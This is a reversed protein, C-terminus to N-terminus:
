SSGPTVQCSAGTIVVKVPDTIKLRFQRNRFAGLRTWRARNAYAGVGGLTTWYEFSWTRGGDDSWQLMAQPDGGQVQGPGSTQGEGAALGVGPEFDIMLGSMFLYANELSMPPSVRIREIMAGDETYATESLQYIKGSSAGGVLHMGAFSAHCNAQWRGLGASKRRHWQQSAADYVWTVDASPFTLVYFTHGGQVYTMAQADDVRAYQSILYEMPRTSIIQPAFGVARVVQLKDTLWVVTNDMVVSSMRAACGTELFVGSIPSLPFAPYAAGTNYWIETSIQGFLWVQRHNVALSVIQDPKGEKTAWSIGDWTTGDNLGSLYFQNSGPKTVVFYSDLFDVQSAGPFNANVIRSFAGPTGSSGSSFTVLYGNAGDAVLMQQGNQTMSVAGTETELTGLITPQGQPTIQFLCTGCVAYLNGDGGPCMGRVPEGPTLSTWAVLGPTGVLAATSKGGASDEVPFLNVCDQGDWYSSRGAYAPGVFGPFIM